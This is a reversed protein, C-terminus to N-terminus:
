SGVGKRIEELLGIVKQEIQDRAARYVEITQGIPDQVQWIIERGSFGHLLPAVSAGAMTVVLEAAKPDTLLISRPQRPELRIGREAMVAITEPQIIRAPYIGASSAEVLGAGLHRAFGEAMPNRCSNGICVFLVLLPQKMSM